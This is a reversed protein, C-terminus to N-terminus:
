IILIILELIKKNAEDNEKEKKEKNSTKQIIFSNEKIDTLIKNKEEKKERSIELKSQHPKSGIEEKIQQPEIKKIKKSSTNM